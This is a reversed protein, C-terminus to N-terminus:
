FLRLYTISDGENHETLWSQRDARRSLWWGGGGGGGGRVDGVMVLWRCIAVVVAVTLPLSCGTSEARRLWGNRSAM